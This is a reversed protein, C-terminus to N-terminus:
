SSYLLLPFKCCCRFFIHLIDLWCCSRHSKKIGHLCFFVTSCFSFNASLSFPHLSFFRSVFQKTRKDFRIEHHCLLTLTYTHIYHTYIKHKQKVNLSFIILYIQFRVNIRHFVSDFQDFEIANFYSFWWILNALFPQVSSM